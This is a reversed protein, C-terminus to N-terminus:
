NSHIDKKEKIRRYKLDTSMSTTFGGILRPNRSVEISRLLKNLHEDSNTPNTLKESSM